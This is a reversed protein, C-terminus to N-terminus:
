PLLDGVVATAGPAALPAVVEAPGLTLHTRYATAGPDAALPQPDRFAHLQRGEIDLVWYDAIGATAYLEAKDTTDRALATDAVEVVLLATTPHDAYDEFRGAVVMVDPQPDSDALALPQENRSVWAVGAFARELWVAAKRCGVVHPWDIPSMEVVEGRIREVRKGEFFGRRAMEYFQERTFRFPRAPPTPPKTIM